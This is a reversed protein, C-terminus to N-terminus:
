KDQVLNRLQAYSINYKRRLSERNVGNFEKAIKRNREHIRLTEHMPIYVQGGYAKSLEILKDM